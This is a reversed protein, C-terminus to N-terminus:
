LKKLKNIERVIDQAKSFLLAIERKMEKEDSSMPESIDINGYLKKYIASLKEADEIIQLKIKRLEAIEKEKNKVAM